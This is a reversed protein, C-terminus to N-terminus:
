DKKRIFPKKMEEVLLSLSDKVILKRYCEDIASQISSGEMVLSGLMIFYADGLKELEDMKRQNELIAKM